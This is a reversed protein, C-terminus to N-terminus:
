EEQLRKRWNAFTQQSSFGLLRAAGSANKGEKLGREIYHRAVRDLLEELRFGDVLDQGLLDDHSRSGFRLLSSKIHDATIIRGQCKIAARIITNKLERVNGPWVAACLSAMANQDFQLSAPQKLNVKDLFHGALLPIDGKRERLAPLELINVAVRHYVDERFEGAAMMAPLDRNTACIFRCDSKIERDKGLPTFTSKELARLLKVQAQLSLEGFEDLFLTGQHAQLMAGNRNALAGTFAGKVHGFLESEILDKPIAACNVPVYNGARGSLRHLQEAVVEKGTGTEGLILVPYDNGAIRAIEDRLERIGPSEGKLASDLVPDSLSELLERNGREKVRPIFEAVMRFPFPMDRVGKERSVHILDAPFVTNALIVWVATMTPTGSSINFVIRAGKAVGNVYEELQKRTQEYVKTYDVPDDLTVSKVTVTAASCKELRERYADTRVSDRGSIILAHTFPRESLARIIPGPVADPTEMACKLDTDGLWSCLVLPTIM